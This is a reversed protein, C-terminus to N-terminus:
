PLLFVTLGRDLSCLIPVYDAQRKLQFFLWILTTTKGCGPPGVIKFPESVQEPDMDM